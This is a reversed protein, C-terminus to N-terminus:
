GRLAAQDAEIRLCHARERADRDEYERVRTELENIRLADNLRAMQMKRVYLASEHMGAMELRTVVDCGWAQLVEQETLAM